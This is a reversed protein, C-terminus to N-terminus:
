GYKRAFAEEIASIRTGLAALLESVRRQVDPQLRHVMELYGHGNDKRWNNRSMAMIAADDKFEEADQM